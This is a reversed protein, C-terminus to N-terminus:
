QTKKRSLTDPVQVAPNQTAPDLRSQMLGSGPKTNLADTANRISLRSRADTNPQETTPAPSSRLLSPSVCETEEPIRNGYGTLDEGAKTPVELIWYGADLM